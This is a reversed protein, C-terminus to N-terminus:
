RKWGPTYGVSVASELYLAVAYQDALAIALARADHTSGYREDPVLVIGGFTEGRAVVPVVVGGPPFAFGYRTLHMSRGVISGSRPLTPLDSHNTTEFRCDVLHLETILVERVKAWLDGSPEGGALMAAATELARGTSLREASLRRARRRWAGIESVVIGIVVLLSVTVIDRSGSIRLSHYPQTHFYNFGLAASIATAFGATRGALAAAVVIMTLVLAVNTAGATDRFRGLLGATSLAVIPGIAIAINATSRLEDELRTNM